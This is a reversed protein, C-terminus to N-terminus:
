LYDTRRSNRLPSVMDQSSKSRKPPASATSPPKSDVTGSKKESPAADPQDQNPSKSVIGRGQQSEPQRRAGASPMQCEDNSQARRVGRQVATRKTEEGSMTSELRTANPESKLSPKVTRAGSMPKESVDQRDTGQIAFSKAPLRHQPAPQRVIGGLSEGGSSVSRQLGRSTALPQQRNAGSFAVDSSQARKLGRRAPETRGIEHPQPQRGDFSATRSLRQPGGSIESAPRRPQERRLSRSSSTNFDHFTAGDSSKSRQPLQRGPVPRTISGDFSRSRGIQRRSEAALFIEDVEEHHSSGDDTHNCKGNEDDHKFFICYAAIAAGFLILLGIGVGVGIWVTPSVQQLAAGSLISQPESQDAGTANGPSAEEPAGNPADTSTSNDPSSVGDNESGTPVHLQFETDMATLRKFFKYSADRNIASPFLIAQKVADLLLEPRDTVANLNEVFQDGSLTNSNLLGYLKGNVTLGGAQMATNRTKQGRISPSNLDRGRRTDTPVQGEVELFLVESDDALSRRLTNQFVSLFFKSQVDDMLRDSPVNSLAVSYDVEVAVRGVYSVSWNPTAGQADKLMAMSVTDALSYLRYRLEDTNLLVSHTFNVTGM